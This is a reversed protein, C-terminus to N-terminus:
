VGGGTDVLELEDGSKVHDAVLSKNPDLVRGPQPRTMLGPTGGVYGFKKAAELAAESVKLTRAWEFLIPDVARAAFVLVKLLRKDDAANTAEIVETAMEDM